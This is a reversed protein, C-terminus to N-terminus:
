EHTIRWNLHHNCVFCALLWCCFVLPIWILVVFTCALGAILRREMQNCFQRVQEPRVRWLNLLLAVCVAVGISVIFLPLCVALRDVTLALIANM